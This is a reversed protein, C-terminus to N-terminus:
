ILDSCLVIEISPYPQFYAIVHPPLDDISQTTTPLIPTWERYDVLGKTGNSSIQAWWPTLITSPPSWKKNKIKERKVKNWKEEKKKEKRNKSCSLNPNILWATVDTVLQHHLWLVSWLVQFFLTSPEPIFHHWVVHVVCTPRMDYIHNNLTPHVTTLM